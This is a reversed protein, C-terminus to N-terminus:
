EDLLMAVTASFGSTSSITGVITAAQHYPSGSSDRIAGKFPQDTSFARTDSVVGAASTLAHIIVGSAVPSGTAPSVTGSDVAYTYSNAGTVTIVAVKNYGNQAAGRIVVQTGDPIGHATHTVTATGATQTISVSDEFPLPGTGDSPELLVRAGQLNAGLYDKVNITTTVPNAVIVVTGTGANYVLNAALNSGNIANITYTQGSAVSVRVAKDGNVTTSYGTFVNGDCDDSRTASITGLDVAWGNGGTNVFSHDEIKDFDDTTVFATSTATNHLSTSGGSILDNAATLTVADCNSFSPETLTIGGPVITQCEIFKDNDSTCLSNLTIVEGFLYTTRLSTYGDGTGLNSTFRFPVSRSVGAFTVDTFDVNTVGTTGDALVIRYYDSAVAPVITNGGTSNNVTLNAFSLSKLSEQLYTTQTAAGWTVPGEIVINGAINRFLGYSATDAAACNAFTLRDGSTGGYLTIGQGGTGNRIADVYFNQLFDEGKTASINGVGGVRTINGSPATGLSAAPRDGPDMNIVAHVWGGAYGKDLGTVYYIAESTGYLYVSIGGVNVNRIPYLDRLWVHFHQDTRTTSTVTSYCGRFGSIATPSTPGVSGSHGIAACNSGQLQIATESAQANGTGISTPSGPDLLLDNLQSTLTATAM